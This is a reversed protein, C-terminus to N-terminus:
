SNTRARWAAWLALAICMALGVLKVISFLTVFVATTGLLLPWTGAPWALWIFTAINELLDGLVLAMLGLGLVNLVRRPKAQFTNLGALSAFARSLLRGGIYAYAFIMLTDWLVAAKLNANGGYDIPNCNGVVAQLQWFAMRIPELLAGRWAHANFFQERGFGLAAWGSAWYFLIFFFAALLWLKGSRREKWVTDKPYHLAPMSMAAGHRAERVCMGAAAWYPSEYLESHILPHAPSVPDAQQSINLVRHADVRLGCQLAEQLLWTIASESIVANDGYTGGVDCHAGPFWRQLLSQQHSNAQDFPIDVDQYQRPKFMVRQEDLALAQRVHLFKKAREGTKIGQANRVEDKMSANVPIQRDLPPIGITAVTDWVGVFHVQVNRRGIDILDNRVKKVLADRTAESNADDKPRMKRMLDRGAQTFFDPSKSTFYINMLTPILHASHAPLLGFANVMGVVSRATFAGRSFGFVYIQDEDKHERILFEYAQAINEFVGQGFALGKVREAMQKIDDWWTTGPAYAPSGVGPDYFIKVQDSSTPLASLLKLVNTGGQEDVTNSTGDCLIVLQRPEFPRLTFASSKESEFLDQM